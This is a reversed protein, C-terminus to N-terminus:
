VHARGIQIDILGTQSNTEDVAVIGAIEADAAGSFSFLSFRCYNKLNEELIQMVSIPILDREEHLPLIVEGSVASLEAKVAISIWKKAGALPIDYQELREAVTMEDMQRSVLDKLFQERLIPLSRKYNERLLSVDRKQEIEEDLSAQIKKLIATLEEVNVPKLIYETVNLKIARKAYEFDDYGSFIVIKMSPYKQRIKEALTLGDMYPMRIDTLVVDPELNEIKELADEGNEADGVVTFGVSQWDIKRIISKRVEEEDDVLIIRYLDM